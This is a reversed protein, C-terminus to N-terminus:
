SSFYHRGNVSHQLLPHSVVYDPAHVSMEFSGVKLRM